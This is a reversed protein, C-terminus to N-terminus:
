TIPAVVLETARDSECIGVILDVATYAGPLRMLQLIRHGNQQKRFFSDSTIEM